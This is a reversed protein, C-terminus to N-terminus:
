WGQTLFAFVVLLHVSERSGGVRLKRREARVQEIGFDIIERLRLVMGFKGFLDAIPNTKGERGEERGYM